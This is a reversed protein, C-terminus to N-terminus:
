RFVRGARRSVACLIEYSITGSLDAITEATSPGEWGFLIVRDGVKATSRTGLNVMIQDM